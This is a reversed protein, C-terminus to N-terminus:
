FQLHTKLYTDLYQIWSLANIGTKSHKMQMLSIPVLCQIQDAKKKGDTDHCTHQQM